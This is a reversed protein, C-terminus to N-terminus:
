ICIYEHQFLLPPSNAQNCNDAVVKLRYGFAVQWLGLQKVCSQKGVAQDSQGQDRQSHQVVKQGAAEPDRREELQHHEEHHQPRVPSINSLNHRIVHSYVPHTLLFRVSYLFM